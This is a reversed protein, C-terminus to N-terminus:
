KAIDVSEAIKYAEEEGLTTLIRFYYDDQPWSISVVGDKLVFLGKNGKIDIERVVDAKETDMIMKAGAVYGSFIIYVDTNEPKEYYIEISDHSAHIIQNFFVSTDIAMPRYRDIFNQGKDEMMIQDHADYEQIGIQTYQSTTHVLFEIFRTRLAEVSMTVAFATVFLILLIIAVRKAVSGAKKVANKFTYNNEQRRIFREFRKKELETPHETPTKAAEEMFKKSEGKAYLLFAMRFCSDIYAEQASEYTNV